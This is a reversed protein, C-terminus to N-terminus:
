SRDEDTPPPPEEQQPANSLATSTDQGNESPKMRLVTFMRFPNGSAKGEGWGEFAIHFKSGVDEPTIKDKLAAKDLGVNVTGQIGLYDSSDSLEIVANLGHLGEWLEKVVGELFAYEEEPWKVFPAGNSGAKGRVEAGRQILEETRTM